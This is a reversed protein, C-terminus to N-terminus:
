GEKGLYADAFKTLWSFLLLAEEQNRLYARRDGAMLQGILDTEPYVRCPHNEDAAGCLWETLWDYLQGSEKRHTGSKGENDSLLFALAQGMGNGLIRIPTKHIHTYMKEPKHAHSPNHAQDSFERIKRLAFVARRQSLLRSM